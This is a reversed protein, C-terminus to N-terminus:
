TENKEESNYKKEVYDDFAKKGETEWWKDYNRTSNYKEKTDENEDCSHKQKKKGNECKSNSNNGGFSGFILRALVFIGIGQWYSINKLGFLEPMLWNWLLKILFGFVFGFAIVAVIGLLVYCIIKVWQPTNKWKEKLSSM